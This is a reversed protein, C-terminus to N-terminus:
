PLYQSNGNEYGTWLAELACFRKYTGHAEHEPEAFEPWTGAAQGLEALHAELLKTLALDRLFGRKLVENADLKAGDSKPSQMLVARRGIADSLERAVTPKDTWVLVVAYREALKAAYPAASTTNDESGISVVDLVDAAAQWLSVANLEGELIALIERKAIMHGGFLTREGGAKQAFRESKELDAGIFRYQAAKIKSASMYPLIIAPLKAKRIPHWVDAMGLRWAQWTAPEFGRGALYAAGSDGSDHCHKSLREAASDVLERAERQWDPDQWKAAARKPEPKRKTASALLDGAGGRWRDLWSAADQFSVALGLWRVLEIADGRKEHCQRCFFWESQAHFRDEGGCKPCAGASEKATLKRLEAHAGAIERLDISSKLAQTDVMASM